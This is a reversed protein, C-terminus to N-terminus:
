KDPFLNLLFKEINKKLDARSGNFNNILIAIAYQNKKDTYYGAYCHVRAMSGSKLRLKGALKTGSLLTRVTGEKAALPLSPVFIGSISADRATQMLVDCIFRASFKNAASLGSGDYKILSCTDIGNRHWFSRIVDTGNDTAAKGTQELGLRKLLCEAYMNDSRVNMSHIIYGLSDSAFELLTNGTPSPLPYQNERLYRFTVPLQTIYIGASALAESLTQALYLAPDPISCSLKYSEKRAPITGSLDRHLSYPAGYIRIEGKGAISQLRNSYSMGPIDPRSSAIQPTTGPEGSRLTLTYNNDAYNLSSIGCGYDWALDEVMWKPSVAEDGFLSDDAIIRGEIRCIGVRKVAELTNDLFLGPRQLSYRSGLTPDGSGRIILDGHLVGKADIKGTYYVPTHFRFSPGLLKIATASTVLKMVSAPTIGQRDNYHSLVKGNKVDMVCIGVTASRLSENEAFDEAKNAYSKEWAGAIVLALIMMIWRSNMM